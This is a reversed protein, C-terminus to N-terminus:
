VAMDMIVSLERVTVIEKQIFQGANTNNKFCFETGCIAFAAFIEVSDDLNVVEYEDQRFIAVPQRGRV